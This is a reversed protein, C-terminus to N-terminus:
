FVGAFLTCLGAIDQAHMDYVIANVAARKVLVDHQCRERTSSPFLFPHNSAPIFAMTNCTLVLTDVGTYWWWCALVFACVYQIDQLNAVLQQPSPIPPQAQQQAHTSLGAYLRRCEQVLKGLAAICADM